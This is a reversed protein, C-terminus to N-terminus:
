TSLWYAVQQQMLEGITLHQGNSVGALVEESVPITDIQCLVGTHARSAINGPGLLDPLMGTDEYLLTIGEAILRRQASDEVESASEFLHPNVLREQRAVVAFRNRGELAVSEFSTSLWYDQLYSQCINADVQLREAQDFVRAEDQHITNFLLKVVDAGDVMVIQEAGHGIVSMGFSETVKSLAFARVRENRLASGLMTKGIRPILPQNNRVRWMERTPRRKAEASLATVRIQLADINM